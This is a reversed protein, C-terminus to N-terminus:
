VMPFVCGDAVTGLGSIGSVDEVRELRFIRTKMDKEFDGNEM